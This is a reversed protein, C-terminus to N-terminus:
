AVGSILGSASLLAEAQQLVTQVTTDQLDSPYGLAQLQALLAHEVDAEPLFAM